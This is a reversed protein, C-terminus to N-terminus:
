RVVLEGRMGLDGHNGVSCVLEYRGPSVQVAASRTKGGQFTDTGGVDRGDRIVRLNHALVGDNKLEVRLPGSPLVVNAPDFSYEDAVVRVSQGPQATVTRDGGKGDGGCGAVFAAATMLALPRRVLRRINHAGTTRGFCARIAQAAASAIRGAPHPRFISTEFDWPATRWPATMKLSRQLPQWVSSAAPVLPDLGSPFTVPPSRVSPGFKLTRLSVFSSTRNAMRFPPNEPAIMGALTTTPSSASFTASNTERYAPFFAGFPV